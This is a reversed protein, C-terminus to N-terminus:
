ANLLKLETQPNSDELKVGHAALWQHCIYDVRSSTALRRRMWRPMLPIMARDLERDIRITIYPAKPRTVM